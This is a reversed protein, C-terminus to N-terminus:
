IVSFLMFLRSSLRKLWKDERHVRQAFVSDYGERAKAYLHPIEEPRDQLDCDMVVVWEGTAYTLGATIAYHQGFNRSLNIGKVCPHLACQKEIEEWSRDPSADNVLIIEYAFTNNPYEPPTNALVAGCLSDMTHMVRAVLEAVM